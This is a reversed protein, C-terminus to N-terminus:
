IFIASTGIMLWICQIFLTQMAKHKISVLAVLCAACNNMTIFTTGGEQIFGHSNAFYALVYLCAGLWGLLEIVKGKSVLNDKLSNLLIDFKNLITM